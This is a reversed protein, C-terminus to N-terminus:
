GFCLQRLNLLTATEIGLEMPATFSNTVVTGREQNMMCVERLVMIKGDIKANPQELLYPFTCSGCAGDVAQSGVTDLDTMIALLVDLLSPDLKRFLTKGFTEYRRAVRITRNM